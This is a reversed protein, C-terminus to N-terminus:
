GIFYLGGAWRWKERKRNKWIREREREAHICEAKMRQNKRECIGLLNRRNSQTSPQYKNKDRM